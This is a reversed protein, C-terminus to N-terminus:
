NIMEDIRKQGVSKLGKKDNILREIRKEILEIDAFALEFMITKLDRIYDVTKLEHPVSDNTFARIVIMLQDVKQIEQILHRPIFYDKLTSISEKFDIFELESYTTKKPQFVNKLKKIRIDPVKTIGLSNMRSNDTKSKIMNNFLSSKGSFSLGVIGIRM